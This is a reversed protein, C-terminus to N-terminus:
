STMQDIIQWHYKLRWRFRRMPGGNLVFFLQHKMDLEHRAFQASRGREV